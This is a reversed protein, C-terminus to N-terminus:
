AVEADDIDDPPSQMLLVRLAASRADSNEYLEWALALQEPDIAEAIAYTELQSEASKSRAARIHDIALALEEATVDAQVSLTNENGTRGHFCVLVASGDTATTDPSLDALAKAANVRQAHSASQTMVRLTQIARERDSLPSPKKRNQRKIEHEQIMKWASAPKDFGADRCIDVPDRDPSEAQLEYYIQRRISDTIKAM